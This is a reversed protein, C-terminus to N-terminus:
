KDQSFWKARIQDYTGDDYIALLAENIRKRLPSGDAVVIGYKERRFLPGVVHVIGSGQKAVWYELTPDDFVVAQVQGETLM